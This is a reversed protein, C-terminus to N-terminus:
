NGTSTSSPSQSIDDQSVTFLKVACRESQWSNEDEGMPLGFFGEDPLSYECGPMDSMHSSYDQLRLKSRLKPARTFLTMPSQRLNPRGLIENSGQRSDHQLLMISLNLM